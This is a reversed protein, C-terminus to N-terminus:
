EITKFKKFNIQEKLTNFRDYMRHIVSPDVKKERKENREIATKIDVEFVKIYIEATNEYEEIISNIDEARLNTEDRIVDFGNKIGTLTTYNCLTTIMNEIEYGAQASNILMFRYYDRSVRIVRDHTSVYEEAWTSKGAGPIGITLILKNKKM